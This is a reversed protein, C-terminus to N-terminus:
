LWKFKAQGPVFFNVLVYLPGSKRYSRVSKLSSGCILSPCKVRGPANAAETNANWKEFYFHRAPQRWMIILSQGGGLICLLFLARSVPISGIWHRVVDHGLTPFPIHQVLYWNQITMGNVCGYIPPGKFHTPGVTVDSSKPPPPRPADRRRPAPAAGRWLTLIPLKM